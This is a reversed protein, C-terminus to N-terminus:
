KRRECLTERPEIGSHNAYISPYFLMDIARPLPIRDIADLLCRTQRTQSRGIGDSYTVSIVCPLRLTTSSESGSVLGAYEVNSIRFNPGQSVKTQRTQPPPSKSCTLSATVLTQIVTVCCM